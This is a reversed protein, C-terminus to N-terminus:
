KYSHPQRKKSDSINIKKTNNILCIGTRKIPNGGIKMTEVNLMLDTIYCTEGVANKHKDWTLFMQGKNTKHAHTCPKKKLSQNM